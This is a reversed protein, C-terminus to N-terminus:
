KKVKIECDIERLPLPEPVIGVEYSTHGKVSRHGKVFECVLETLGIPSWNAPRSEETNVLVEDCEECTVVVREPPWPEEFADILASRKM